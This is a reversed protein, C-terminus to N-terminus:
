NSEEEEDVMKTFENPEAEDFAVKAKTVGVETESLSKVTGTITASVSDGIKLAAPAAKGLPLYICPSDVEPIEVPAIPKKM